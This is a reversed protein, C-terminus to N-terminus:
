AQEFRLAAEEGRGLAKVSDAELYIHRIDPHKQRVAAEVRDVAKEIEAIGDRVDEV